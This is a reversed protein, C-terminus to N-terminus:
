TNQENRKSELFSVLEEESIYFGQLRLLDNDTKMLMDGKGLLDEAGSRDLITQSDIHSPLRFSVRYPLVAKISSTV